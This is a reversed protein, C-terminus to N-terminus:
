SCTPMELYRIASDVLDVLRITPRGYHEYRPIDLWRESRLHDLRMPHVGREARSQVGRAMGLM